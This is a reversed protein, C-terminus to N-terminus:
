NRSVVRVIESVTTVGSQLAQIGSVFLNCMGEDVAKAYITDATAGSAILSRIAETVPLIEFLAHRGIYGSGGCGGCGSGEFVM